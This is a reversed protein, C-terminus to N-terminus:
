VGLPWRRVPALIQRVEKPLEVIFETSLNKDAISQSRMAQKEIRQMNWGVAKYMALKLWGPRNEGDGSCVYGAVYVLKINKKGKNFVIGDLEVRSDYFLYDDTDVLYGSGYGRDTDDHLSTVSVIPYYTPWITDIIGDGDFYETRSTAGDEFKRSCHQEIASQVLPIMVGIQTDKGSDSVDMAAKYEAASIYAM